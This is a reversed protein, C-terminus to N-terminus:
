CYQKASTDIRDHISKYLNKHATLVDNGHVQNLEIIPSSLLEELLERNKHEAVSFSNHPGCKRTFCGHSIFPFQQLIEFELWVIGNREKRIM